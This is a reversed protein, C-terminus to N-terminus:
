HPRAGDRGAVWETEGSGGQVDVRGFGPASFASRNLSYYPEDPAWPNLNGAPKMGLKEIVRLSIVNPPDAGAIVRELGAEELAYRLCALAAETAIGRGWASATLEYALEMEVMGDLRVFGCFGLLDEHGRFRVGFLGIDESSFTRRSQTILDRIAAVPVPEDDWLYRRVAPENSISHLDNLDGADLPRLTLRETELQPTRGSAGM